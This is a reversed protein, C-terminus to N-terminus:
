RPPDELLLCEASRAPGRVVLLPKRSACAEIAVDCRPAFSCGAPMAFPSPVTGPIEPLALGTGGEWDSVRMLGRAYPHLPARFVEEVRGEEVKRGGYMVVVRDAIEGVVGLDHTILLVAMGLRAQLEGILELVQAQITVDLATTPEDAVLLRPDCALAMAIMARQRMGGSLNHPYQRVRTAPAPVRVLELLEVARDLAQRRSLATHLMLAEVIQAGISHVPNLAMMPDQFIMAVRSGRVQRMESEPLKVLDRGEFLIEGGAIIGPPSPIIRMIAAAVTSKGSGSEGVLAVTEGAEIDFSVEEVARVVGQRTPFHVSLDRVSLLASM